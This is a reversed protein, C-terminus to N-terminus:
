IRKLLKELNEMDIDVIPNIRPKVHIMIGDIKPPPIFTKGKCIAIKRVECFNQSIISLRGFDKTNNKALIREGVERQFMLLLEIRGFTGFAGEKKSIDRIWNIYLPTAIGFPLNGAIVVNSDEKWETPKASTARKIIENQNVKLIDDHFIKLRNGSADKLIDLAPLFRSDKEVVVSEKAYTLISRTLCGPGPGVELFSKESVDGIKRIYKDTVRQDLIFNQSLQKSAQLDYLKLIERLSPVPPLRKKIM